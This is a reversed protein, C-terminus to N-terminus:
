PCSAFPGPALERSASWEAPAPHSFRARHVVRLNRLMGQPDEQNGIFERWAWRRLRQTPGPQGTLQDRMPCLHEYQRDLAITLADPQWQRPSQDDIARRRARCRAE